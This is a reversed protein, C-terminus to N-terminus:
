YATKTTSHQEMLLAYVYSILHVSPRLLCLSRHFQLKTENRRYFRRLQFYQLQLLTSQVPEPVIENFTMLSTPSFLYKFIHPRDSPFVCTAQILDPISLSSMGLVPTLPGDPTFLRAQPLLARGVSATTSAVLPLDSLQKKPLSSIPFWHPATLPIKSVSSELQIWLKSSGHHYRDLIRAAISALYYAKFDPVALDGGLMPKSLTTRAIRLRKQAWIFLATMKNLSAFFSRPICVPVSQFLYLLRPLVNMKLINIRCIWCFDWRDWRALDQKIITLLPAFNLDYAKHPDAPIHVGSYKFSTTAWSFSFNQRLQSTVAAGLNINLALSKSWNIKHNSFLSYEQM